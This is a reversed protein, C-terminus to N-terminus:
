RRDQNLFATIDALKDDSMNTVETDMPPRSLNYKLTPFTRNKLPQHCPSCTTNWLSSGRFRNADLIAPILLMEKGYSTLNGSGDFFRNAPTPTASPSITPVVTPSSTPQAGPTPTGQGPTADPLPTPSPLPLLSPDDGGSITIARSKFWRTRKKKNKEAYTIRARYVYDGAPLNADELENKRKIRALRYIPAFPESYLSREVELLSRKRLAPDNVVISLTTVDAVASGVVVVPKPQPTSAFAGRFGGFIVLLCLPLLGFADHFRPLRSGPM